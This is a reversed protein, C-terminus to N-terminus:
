RVLFLAIIIWCFCENMFVSLAGVQFSVHGRFNMAAGNVIAFICFCGLHGDVPHSSLTITYVCVPIDSLWLFHSLAMLLM